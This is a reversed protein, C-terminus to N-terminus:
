KSLIVGCSFALLLGVPYLWSDVFIKKHQRPNQEVRFNKELRDLKDMIELKAASLEEQGNDGAQTMNSVGTEISERAAKWEERMIEREQQMQKIADIWSRRLDEGADHTFLVQRIYDSATFFGAEVTRKYLQNKEDTSVRIHFVEDRAM